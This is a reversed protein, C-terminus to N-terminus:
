EDDLEPYHRYIGMGYRMRRESGLYESVKSLAKVRDYLAFVKGYKGGGRLREVCKPFAYGLGDLCQFLVLDAYTLQGGYLWEGGKSSESALVREFYGLFKPLRNERYDQARRRAEDRQDEYYLGVGVPHHTEHPENSLGDLATLALAQVHPAGAPDEDADPLLGVRPAIYSLISPTQSFLAAGHRLVPPAFPPPEAAAGPPDTARIFAVLSQTGDPTENCVDVYPTGTAEFALRVHEGRGPIGPWYFLEFPPDAAAADTCQRKAGRTETAMITPLHAASLHNPLEPLPHCLNSALWHPALVKGRALVAPSDPTLIGRKLNPRPVLYPLFIGASARKSVWKISSEFWRM